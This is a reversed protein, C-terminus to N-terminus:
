SAQAKTVVVAIQVRNGVGLKSMVTSVLLKVTAESVHLSSALAINTMGATVGEAVRQERANLCEFRKLHIKDLFVSRSKVARRAADSLILAGGRYIIRLAVPLDESITESRLIASAGCGVLYEGLEDPVNGMIVITPPSPEASVAKCTLTLEAEGMAVDLLVLDIPQRAMLGLIEDSDASSGVVDIYGAPSLLQALGLGKVYDCGVIAMRMTASKEAIASNM